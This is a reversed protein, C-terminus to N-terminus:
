IWLLTGVSKPNEHVIENGKSKLQNIKQDLYIAKYEPLNKVALLTPPNDKTSIISM